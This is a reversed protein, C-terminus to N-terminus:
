PNPGRRMRPAVRPPPLGDFTVQQEATLADRIMGYWQDAEEQLGEFEVRVSDFRARQEPTVDAPSTPRPEGVMQRRLEARRDAAQKMVANLATYAPAIARRQSATLGVTQTISDLTLWHDPPPAFRQGTRGPPPGGPGVQAAAPAAVLVTLLTLRSFRPM